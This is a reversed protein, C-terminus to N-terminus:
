GLRKWVLPSSLRRSAETVLNRLARRSLMGFYIQLRSRIRETMLCLMHFDFEDRKDSEAGKREAAGGKSL